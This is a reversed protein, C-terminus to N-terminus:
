RSRGDYSAAPPLGEVDVGDLTRVDIMATMRGEPTSFAFPEIGCITCFHHDIEHRNFRYTTLKDSGALLRFQERPVFAWLFGRMRCISCNCRVTDELDAEVSFAVAKCHCSGSYIGVPM